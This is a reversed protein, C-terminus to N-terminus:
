SHEQSHNKESEDEINDTAIVIEPYLMYGNLAPVYGKSMTGTRLYGSPMRRAELHLMYGESM